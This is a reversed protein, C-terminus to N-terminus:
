FPKISKIVKIQWSSNSGLDLIWNPVVVSSQYVREFGAESNSITEIPFRWINAPNDFKLNINLKQWEDVLGMETVNNIEGFSALKRDALEKGPFYYYRDEANGALLSFNLEVGFKVSIRKQSLNKITYEINIVQADKPIHINKKVQIPEQKGEYWIFGSRVFQILAKQIKFKPNQIEVHYPQDVFDGLEEYECRSFETLTADVPMFHDLLSYRQYWDYHLYQELHPEKTIVLDHIS